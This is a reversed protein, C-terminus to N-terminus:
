LTEFQVSHSHLHPMSSFRQNEQAHSADQLLVVQQADPHHQLIDIWWVEAIACLPYHLIKHAIAVPWQLLDSTKRGRIGKIDESAFM